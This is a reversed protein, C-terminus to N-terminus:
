FGFGQQIARATSVSLKGCSAYGAGRLRAVHVGHGLGRGPLMGAIVIKFREDRAVAFARHEHFGDQAVVAHVPKVLSVAALFHSYGVVAAAGGAEGGEDVGAEAQAVREEGRHATDLQADFRQRVEPEYGEAEAGAVEM